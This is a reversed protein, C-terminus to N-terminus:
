PDRTKGAEELEACYARWRQEKEAGLAHLYNFTYIGTEHGDDFTPRVAYNGVSVLDIIAVNRKGFQLRRQDPSHGRVEASPSTVRLYEASYDFIQGDAFQVSLSRGRDRLRLEIVKHTTPESM